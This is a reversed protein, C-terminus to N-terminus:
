IPTPPVPRGKSLFASIPTVVRSLGVAFSGLCSSWTLFSLARVRSSHFSDVAEIEIMPAKRHHLVHLGDDAELRESPWAVVLLIESPAASELLGRHNWDGQRRSCIQHCASQTSFLDADRQSNCVVPPAWGLFGPLRTAQLYINSVNISAFMRGKESTPLTSWEHRDM